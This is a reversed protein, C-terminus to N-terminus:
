LRTDVLAQRRLDRLKQRAANEAKENELQARIQGENPLGSDDRRTCLTAFLIAGGVEIPATVKGPQLNIVADRVADPLGGIYMDPIRGSGPSGIEKAWKDMQECSTVETRIADSVQSLKEDSLARAGETPLYVQSMTVVSMRPDPAGASRRARLQILHYGTATRIPESVENPEMRAVAADVEPELDGQIVWGLDGGVAATPSQSFQQALAAFPAGTRAQQSLRQALENMTADPTAASVPLFIEAVNNETKGQNAKMRALVASVEQPQVNTEHGVSERVVKIWALNAEIQQVMSGFDLNRDSVLKRLSGLPMNNRQEIGDLAQRVEAETITIKLRRAEQLELREEILRELTQAMLRRQMDPTNELGSTAIVVGVRAQVDYVTIVDENVVAAISMANLAQPQQQPRLLDRGLQQAAAPAAALLAFTLSLLCRKGLSLTMPM